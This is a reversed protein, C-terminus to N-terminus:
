RRQAYSPVLNARGTRSVINDFAGNCSVWRSFIVVDRSAEIRRNVIVACLAVRERNLSAIQQDIFEAEAVRLPMNQPAKLRVIEHEIADRMASLDRNTAIM